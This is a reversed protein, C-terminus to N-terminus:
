RGDGSSGRASQASQIWALYACCIKIFGFASGVGRSAYLRTFCLSCTTFFPVLRLNACARMKAPMRITSVHEAQPQVFVRMTGSHGPTCATELCIPLQPGCSRGNSELTM